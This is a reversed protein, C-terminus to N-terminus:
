VNFANRQNKESPKFTFCLVCIASCLAQNKPAWFWRCWILPTSEAWGFTQLILDCACVQSSLFSVLSCMQFTNDHFVTETFSISIYLFQSTFVWKENWPSLWPTGCIILWASPVGRGRRASPCGDRNLCTCKAAICTHMDSIRDIDRHSCFAWEDEFIVASPKGESLLGTPTKKTKKKNRSTSRM